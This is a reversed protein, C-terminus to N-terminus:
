NKIIISIEFVIHKILIKNYKKTKNWLRNEKNYNIVHMCACACHQDCNATCCKLRKCFWFKGPFKKECDIKIYVRCYEAVKGQFGFGFIQKFISCFRIISLLGIFPECVIIWREVILWYCTLIYEYFLSFKNIYIDKDIEVCINFCIKRCNQHKHLFLHLAFIINFM